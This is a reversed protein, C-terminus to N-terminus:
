SPELAHPAVGLLTHPARPLAVYFTSGRGLESAVWIRGGHLEVLRRALALGLGAGRQERGSSADVLFFPLFVREHHEAAIGIGDDRVTLLVEGERLEASVWVQGGLPTFKVANSLLARLVQALRAPDGYLTAEPPSQLTVSLGKARAEASVSEVGAQLLGAVAIPLRQLTVDGAELRSLDFLDDILRMLQWGATYITQTYARQKDNLPGVVEDGLVQAYGIVSTLPTRLEHSLIGLFERQVRNARELDSNKRELAAQYRRLASQTSTALSVGRVAVLEVSRDRFRWPRWLLEVPVEKGGWLILTGELPHPARRLAELVGEETGRPPELRVLSGLTRGRLEHPRCGLLAALARNAAVIRGGELGALADFSVELAAALAEQWRV